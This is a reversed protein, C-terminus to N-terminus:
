GTLKMQEPEDLIGHANLFRMVDYGFKAQMPYQTGYLQRAEQTGYDFGQADKYLAAIGAIIATSEEQRM